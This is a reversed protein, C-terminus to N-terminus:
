HVVTCRLSRHRYWEPGIAIGRASMLFDIQMHLLVYSNMAASNSCPESICQRYQDGVSVLPYIWVSLGVNAEWEQKRLYSMVQTPQSLDSNQPYLVQCLDRSIGLQCELINDPLQWRHRRCSCFLAQSLALKEGRLRATLTTTPPPDAAQAFCKCTGLLLTMYVPCFAPKIRSCVMHNMNAQVDFLRVQM